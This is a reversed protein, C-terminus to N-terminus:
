FVRKQGTELDPKFKLGRFVPTYEQPNFNEGEKVEFLISCKSVPELINSNRFFEEQGNALPERVSGFM